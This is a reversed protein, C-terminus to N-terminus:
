LRGRSRVGAEPVQDGAVLVEEVGRQVVGPFGAGVKGEWEFHDVIRRIVEIVQEPNGPSPTPIRFRDATFEGIETDVPAGKIGSGGIDIGLVAM